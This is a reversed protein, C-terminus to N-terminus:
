LVYLKKLEYINKNIKICLSNITKKLNSYMITNDINLMYFQMNMEYMELQKKINEFDNILKMIKLKCNIYPISM